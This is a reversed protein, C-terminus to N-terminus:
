CDANIMAANISVIQTDSNYTFYATNHRNQQYEDFGICHLAIIGRVYKEKDLDTNKDQFEDPYAAEYKATIEPITGSGGLDRVICIAKEIER